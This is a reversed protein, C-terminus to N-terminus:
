KYLMKILYANLDENCKKIQEPTWKYFGEGSKFGM